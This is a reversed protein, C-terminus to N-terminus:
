LKVVHCKWLVLFVEMKLAMPTTKQPSFHYSFLLVGVYVAWCVEAFVSLSALRDTHRVAKCIWWQCFGPALLM